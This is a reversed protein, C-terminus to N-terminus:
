KKEEIIKREADNLLTQAFHYGVIIENPKSPYKGQSLKGNVQEFDQM